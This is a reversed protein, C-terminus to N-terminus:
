TPLCAALAVLSWVFLTISRIHFTDTVMQICISIIGLGLGIGMLAQFRNRSNVCSWAKLIAAGLFSIYCLLAITGSEAWIDLYSNHVQIDLVEAPIGVDYTYYDRTVLAYNGAGVGLWPHARIVNWALKWMMPRSNASGYDYATFRKYIPGYFIAILALMAIFVLVLTERKIWGIQLGAFVFALVTVAFSIWGIRSGTSVMAVIGLGMSTVALIKLSKKQFGWLMSFAILALAGLYGAAPGTWGLTGAVRGGYLIEAQIGAIQFTLGTVWQVIMLVSEVVMGILSVVIFFQMDKITRIHNVLYFYVLFVEVLVAVRFM